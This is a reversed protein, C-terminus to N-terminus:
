IGRREFSLLPSLPFVSSAKERCFNKREKVRSSLIPLL